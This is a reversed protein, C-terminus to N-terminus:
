AYQDEWIYSLGTIVKSDTQPYYKKIFDFALSWYDSHLSNYEKLSKVKNLVKKYNRDDKHAEIWKIATQIEEQYDKLCSYTISM